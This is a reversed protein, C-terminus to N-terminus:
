NEDRLRVPKREVEQIEFSYTASWLKIQGRKWAGVESSTAVYADKNELIQIDVRGPEECADLDVEYDHPVGVFDRVQKLLAEISEGKFVEDGSYSFATDPDCGHEYNDQEAFKYWGDVEYTTM